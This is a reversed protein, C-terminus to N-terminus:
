QRFALRAQLLLATMEAAVRAEDHDEDLEELKYVTTDRIVEPDFGALTALAYASKPCNLPDGITQAFGIAEQESCGACYMIVENRLSEDFREAGSELSLILQAPRSLM